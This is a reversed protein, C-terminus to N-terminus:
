LINAHVFLVALQGDHRGQPTIRFVAGGTEDVEVNKIAQRSPSSATIKVSDLNYKQIWINKCRLDKNIM